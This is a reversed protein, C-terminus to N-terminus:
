LNKFVNAKLIMNVTKGDDSLPMDLTEVLLHEKDTHSMTGSSRVPEFTEMAQYFSRIVNEYHPKTYCDDLYHGTVDRGTANTVVTGVLRYRFRLPDREIDILTLHGLYGKLTEPNFDARSPMSRDAKREEWLNLIAILLEAELDSVPSIRRDYQYAQASQQM